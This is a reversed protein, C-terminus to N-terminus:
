SPEGGLVPPYGSYSQKLEEPYYKFGCNNPCSWSVKGQYSDNKSIYGGCNECKYNYIIQTTISEPVDYRYFRCFNLPFDRFKSWRKLLENKAKSALPSIEM